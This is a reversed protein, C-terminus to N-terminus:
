ILTELRQLGYFILGGLSYCAVDIIDGTYRTSQLPLYYEFVVSYLIVLSFISFWHLTMTYDKKLLWVAHLGLLAVMPIVLVDNVYSFVWNPANVQYSKLAQVGAFLVLSFFVYFHLIRLPLQRMM